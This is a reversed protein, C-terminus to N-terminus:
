DGFFSRARTGDAWSAHHYHMSQQTRGGAPRSTGVAAPVIAPVGTIRLAARVSDTPVPEGLRRASWAPPVAASTLGHGWAQDAQVAVRIDREVPGHDQHAPVVPAVDPDGRGPDRPPVTTQGQVAVPDQDAVQPA